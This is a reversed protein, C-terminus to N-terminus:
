DYPTEFMRNMLSMMHDIDGIGGLAHGQCGRRCCFEVYGGKVLNLSTMPAGCLKCALPLTLSAECRPCRFEVVSGPPLELETEVSYDGFLASLRMEGEQHTDHVFANLPIRGGDTLPAACQPCSTDLILMQKSM